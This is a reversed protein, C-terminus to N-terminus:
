ATPRLVSWSLALGSGHRHPAAGLSAPQNPPRNLLLPRGM